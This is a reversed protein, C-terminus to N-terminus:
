TSARLIADGLGEVLNCGVAQGVVKTQVWALVVQSTKYGEQSARRRLLYNCHKISHIQKPLSNEQHFTEVGYPRTLAVSAQPAWTTIIGVGIRKCYPHMEREDERYLLSYEDRMSVFTTWGNKGAIENMMAFEWRRMSSVGIYRVNRSQGLYHLAKM